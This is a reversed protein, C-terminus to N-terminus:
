TLAPRSRDTITRPRELAVEKELWAAVGKCGEAKWPGGPWKTGIGRRALDLATRGGQDKAEVDAGGEEVLFRVVELHGYWAARSLPTM